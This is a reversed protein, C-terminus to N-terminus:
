SNSIGCNKTVRGNSDVCRYKEKPVCSSYTDPSITRHSTQYIVNLFGTIISNTTSSDKEDNYTAGSAFNCAVEEGITSTCGIIFTVIVMVFVSRIINFPM